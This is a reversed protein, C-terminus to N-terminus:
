ATHFDGDDLEHIEDRAFEIHRPALNLQERFRQYTLNRPPIAASELQRRQVTSQIILATLCCTISTFLGACFMLPPQYPLVAAILTEISM